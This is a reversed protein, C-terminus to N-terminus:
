RIVARPRQLYVAALIIAAQIIQSFADPVNHSILTASIFQLLLAGAVTGAIRVQGGTLPTGGVVVATIASLEILNGLTSPVSAALRATGIIGAVSALGACLIYVLLLTRKVPLGALGAAKRNGGIAVLRKGFTTRHVVVAVVLVLLIAVLVSYPVSLVSDRGLALIGPDTVSVLQENAILLALGRGAVMLSLTAVIPPVGIFAVMTGNLVGIMTGALISIVLAPVLGYGIYLPLVAASMAMVGGVSLDIGETGIVLAMGLAVILVPVVQVFQTRFNDLQFFNKTFILDFLLVLVIAFYVGYRQLVLLTAARRPLSITISSENM